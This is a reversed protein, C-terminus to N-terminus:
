LKFLLFNKINFVLFDLVFDLLGFSSCDCGFTVFFGFMLGQTLVCPLSPSLAPCCLYYCLVHCLTFWVFPIVLSLYVLPLSLHVM